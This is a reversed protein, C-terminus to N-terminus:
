FFFDDVTKATPISVEQLEYDDGFIIKLFINRSEYNTFNKSTEVWFENKPVPFNSDSSTKIFEIINKLSNLLGNLEQSMRDQFQLLMIIPGVIEMLHSNKEKMEMITRRLESEQLSEHIAINEIKAVTIKTLKNLMDKQEETLSSLKQFYDGINIVAQESISTVRQSFIQMINSIHSDIAVQSEM